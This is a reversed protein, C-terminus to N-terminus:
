RLHDYRSPLGALFMLVELVCEITVDAPATSPLGALRMLMDLATEITPAVEQV